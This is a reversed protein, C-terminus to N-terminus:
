RSGRFHSHRDVYHSHRDVNFSSEAFKIYNATMKKTTDTMYINEEPLFDNISVDDDIRIRSFHDAVGNEVGKQNRVDIDFKQLLM